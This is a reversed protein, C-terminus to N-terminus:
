NRNTDNIFIKVFNSKDREPTGVVKYSIGKNYLLPKLRTIFVQSPSELAHHIATYRWKDRILLDTADMDVIAEFLEYSKSVIAQVLPTYGIINRLNLDPKRELLALGFEVKRQQACIHLPAEEADNISNLLGDFQIFFQFKQVDDHLIAQHLLSNGFNPDRYMEFLTDGSLQRKKIKM